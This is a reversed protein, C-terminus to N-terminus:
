DAPDVITALRYVALAAAVVLTISYILLLFGTAAGTFQVVKLATLVWPAHPALLQAIDYLATADYLTAWILAIVQVLIFHFFTANVEDLATVNRNNKVARLSRKLRNTILSFLIPLVCTQVGTGLACRTHRRRSSYFFVIVM